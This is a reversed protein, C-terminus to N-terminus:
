NRKNKSLPVYSLSIQLKILQWWNQIIPIHCFTNGAKSTEDFVQSETKVVKFVANRSRNIM